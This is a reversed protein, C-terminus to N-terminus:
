APMVRGPLRVWGRLANNLQPAPEGDPTLTQFARALAALLTEGELRALLHGVCM